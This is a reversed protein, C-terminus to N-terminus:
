YLFIIFTALDKSHMASYLASDWIITWSVTSFVKKRNTEIRIAGLWSRVWKETEEFM